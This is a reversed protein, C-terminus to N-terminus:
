ASVPGAFSMQQAIGQVTSTRHACHGHLPSRRGRSDTYNHLIAASELNSKAILRAEEAASDPQAAIERTPVGRKETLPELTTVARML